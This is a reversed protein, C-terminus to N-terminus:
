DNSTCLSRLYGWTYIGHKHGDSWEIQIAYNGVLQVDTISLAESTRLQLEGTLDDILQSPESDRETRCEACPCNKRLVGYTCDSVQGSDWEIRLTRQSGLIKIGQPQMSQNDAMM